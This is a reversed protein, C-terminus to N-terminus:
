DGPTLTMSFQWRYTENPLTLGFHKWGEVAVDLPDPSGIGPEVALHHYDRWGGRTLWVGVTDVRRPDFDFRLGDGTVPNHIVAATATRPQTFFKIAAPEAGLDLEDLAVGPRPRPWALDDGRTGLPLNMAAEMRATTVGPLALRDGPVITMLPHFAWMFEQPIFDLNQLAYAVTVRNEDLSITRELWFPSVPLRLRTVLRGQGLAAEDVDCASFWVEGHSPLKRGRWTCAGITPLCEDAGVLSSEEFLTEASMPQYLAGEPPTWMWERGSRLNRLGMVKGGVEPLIAIEVAVSRLGAVAFGQVESVFSEVM